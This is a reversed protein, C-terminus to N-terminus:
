IIIESSKIGQKVYNAMKVKSLKFSINISLFIANKTDFHM